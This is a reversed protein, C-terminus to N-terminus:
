VKWWVTFVVENIDIARCLASDARRRRQFRISADFCDATPEDWSEPVRFATTADAGLRACSVGIHPDGAGHLLYRLRALLPIM